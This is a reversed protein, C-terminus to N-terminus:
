NSTSQSIWPLQEPLQERSEAAPSPKARIPNASIVGSASSAQNAAPKTQAGAIQGGPNCSAPAVLLGQGYIPDPGPAGLDRYNLHKLVDAPSNVPLQAYIAALAATVYPTAFSTGSHYGEKSGPMATWIAVGPASIDIYSGRNAYRYSKLNQGVATVAIVQDYAAPYSPGAAPGENGAAAVFLIGKASLKKIAQGLLADPPGSLSMNIIKVNKGDLWDFARLMSITDSAPQHDTDGYFVDAVYFSADPILGPTGSSTDGALLATVGTGHWDPGAAGDHGLHQVEIKKRVFAPHNVDVSTDIVGIRLAQTVCSRLAPKWGVIDRGFCHDIGCPVGAGPGATSAPVAQPDAEKGTAPRYIRYKQNITVNAQPEATNLLAGASAASMSQPVQLRTVSYGLKSFTTVGNIAFGLKRAQAITKATANVALVEPGALEPFELNVSSGGTSPKAPRPKPVVGKAVVPKTAVPKVTVPKVQVPAPTAPTGLGLLFQQVTAPPQNVATTGSSEGDAGSGATEHESSTATSSAGTSGSSGGTSNGVPRTGSGGQDGHHDGDHNTHEGSGGSPPQAQTTQPQTNAPQTTAPQTTAPQTTAHTETQTAQEREPERAQDQQKQERARDHDAKTQERQQEKAQRATEREADRAKAQDAREQDRQQEKAQRATEREADRAQRRQERAQDEMERHMDRDMGDGQDRRRDGALAPTSFLLSVISPSPQRGGERPAPQFPTRGFGIVLLAVLACGKALGRPALGRRAVFGFCRRVLGSFGGSRARCRCSIRWRGLM